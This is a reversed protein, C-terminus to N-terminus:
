GMKFKKIKKLLNRNKDESSERFGAVPSICKKLPGWKVKESTTSWKKEVRKRRVHGLDVKKEASPAVLEGPEEEQWWEPRLKKLEVM